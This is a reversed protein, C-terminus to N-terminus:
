IKAAIIWRATSQQYRWTCSWGQASSVPIVSAGGSASFTGPATYLEITNGTGANVTLAGTTTAGTAKVQHEEGDLALASTPLTVTGSAGTSDFVICPQAIHPSLSGGAALATWPQGLLLAPVSCRVTKTGAAFSVASGSNSSSLVTDRSLTTGSTTYTGIGVEWNTGDDVEYPVKQGSTFAASFAQFGTSAGALTLTGTGTTTTTEQVRDVYFPNAM